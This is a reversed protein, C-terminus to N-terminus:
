DEPPMTVEVQGDSNAIVDGGLARIRQVALQRTRDDVANSLIGFWASVQASKSNPNGALFRATKRSLRASDASYPDSSQIAWHAATEFSRRAAQSDGLFLLEDTGKFRWLYHAQPQSQPTM